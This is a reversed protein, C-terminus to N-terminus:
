DMCGWEVEQLDVKINGERRRWPTGLPRRGDPIEVVVRHAGRRHGVCAVHEAWWMSGSKILGFINPSSYM